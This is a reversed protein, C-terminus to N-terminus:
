PRRESHCDAEQLVGEYWDAALDNWQPNMSDILAVKKERRYTKIQKERKIAADPSGFTEVYLLHKINYAATFGPHVKEKHQYVRTRLRSTIGTYLTGTKSALIYVYYTKM